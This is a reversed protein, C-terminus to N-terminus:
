GRSHILVTIGDLIRDLGFRFEDGPTEPRDFVGADIVARLAPYHGQNSIRVLLQRYGTMMQQATSGAAQVATAISASLSAEARVFGTLLIIVSMKEAETLSTDRLYQLGRELWAVQNPTAPPGSIPIHLIWPHERLVALDERAWRSLGERWGEGPGLSAPPSGFVADEMLLLLEDKAAVYRYLTMASTGLEAAVRHMSVAALGEARAVDVATTVIKELSLGPKPGKRPQDRLGWTREISAPLRMDDDDGDSM